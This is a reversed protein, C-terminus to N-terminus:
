EGGKTPFLDEDHPDATPIAHQKAFDAEYCCGAWYCAAVLMLLCLVGIVGAVVRYKKHGTAVVEFFTLSTVTVDTTTTKKNHRDCIEFAKVQSSNPNLQQYM